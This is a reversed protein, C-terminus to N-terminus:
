AVALIFSGAMARSKKEGLWRVVVTIADEIFQCWEQNCVLRSSIKFPSIYTKHRPQECDYSFGQWTTHTDQGIGVEVVGGDFAVMNLPPLAARSDTVNVPPSSLVVPHMPNHSLLHLLDTLFLEQHQMEHHLGIIVIPAIDGMRVEAVKRLRHDVDDRYDVVEQLSPRTLLGRQPRAHRSGVSEYYSNFLFCFREDHWHFDEAFNQLIFTEFFWTTHALHWKGPSADPMSQASLDEASLGETLLVTQHRIKNYYDLLGPETAV